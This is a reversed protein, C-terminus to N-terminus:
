GDESRGNFVTFAREGPRLRQDEQVAQRGQETIVVRVDFAVLGRRWLAILTRGPLPLDAADLFVPRRSPSAIGALAGHRGSHAIYVLASRMKETLPM